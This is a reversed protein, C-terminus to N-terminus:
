LCMFIVGMGGSKKKLFKQGGAPQSKKVKESGPRGGPFKEGAPESSGFAMM